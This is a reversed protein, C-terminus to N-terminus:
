LVRDAVWIIVLVLFIVVVGVILGKTVNDETKIWKDIIKDFSGFFTSLFILAVFVIGLILSINM